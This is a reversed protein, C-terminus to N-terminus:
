HGESTERGVLDSVAVTEAPYTIRDLIVQIQEGFRRAQEDVLRAALDTDGGSRLTKQLITQRSLEVLQEVRVVRQRLAQVILERYVICHYFRFHPELEGMEQAIAFRLDQLQRYAAQVSALAASEDVPADGGSQRLVQQRAVKNAQAQLVLLERLQTDIGEIDDGLRNLGPGISGSLTAFRDQLIAMEERLQSLEEAQLAPGAEPAPPHIALWHEGLGTREGALQVFSREVHSLLPQTEIGAIVQLAQELGAQVPAPITAATALIMQASAQLEMPMESLRLVVAHWSLSHFATDAKSHSAHHRDQQLKICLGRTEQLLGTFRRLEGAGEPKLRVQEPLHRWLDHILNGTRRTGRDSSLLVEWREYFKYPEPQIQTLLAELEQRAQHLDDPEERQYARINRGESRLDQLVQVKVPVALELLALLLRGALLALGREKDLSVAAQLSGYDTPEPVQRGSGIPCPGDEVLRKRRHLQDVPLRSLSIGQSRAIV